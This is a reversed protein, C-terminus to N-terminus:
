GSWYAQRSFGMSLPLTFEHSFLKLFPMSHFTKSVSSIETIFLKWAFIVLFGQFVTPALAMSMPTGM